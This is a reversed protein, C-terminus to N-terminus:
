KASAAVPTSVPKGKDKVIVVLFKAPETKSANASTRHVDQPSEYFTEGPKLTVPQQGDVQMIISGELVYVFVSADHRHPLSSGGPPYEVTLMLSEKGPIGDLDKTMLPTVKAARDSTDAAAAEAFLMLALLPAVVHSLIKVTIDTRNM